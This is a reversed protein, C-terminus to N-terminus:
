TITRVPRRNVVGREASQPDDGQAGQEPSVEAGVKGFPGGPTGDPALPGHGSIYVRDQHVRVWAFPAQVGPPLKPAEPLALGLEELKAEVRM